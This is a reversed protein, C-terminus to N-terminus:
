AAYRTSSSASVQSEKPIHQFIHSDLDLKLMKIIRRNYEHYILCKVSPLGSQTWMINQIFAAKFMYLWILM